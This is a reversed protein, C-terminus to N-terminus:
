SKKGLVAIRLARYFDEPGAGILEVARFFENIIEESEELEAGVLVNELDEISEEPHMFFDGAFIVKEIKGDRHWVHVRIMKGGRVKYDSRGESIGAIQAM